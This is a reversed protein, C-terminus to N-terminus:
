FLYLQREVDSARWQPRHRFTWSYFIYEEHWEGCSGCPNPKKNVSNMECIILPGLKGVSCGLSIVQVTDYCVPSLSKVCHYSYWRIAKDNFFCCFKCCECTGWCETYWVWSRHRLYLFHIHMVVTTVVGSVACGGHGRSPTFIVTPSPTTTTPTTATPTTAAAATAKEKGKQCRGRAPGQVVCFWPSCPRIRLICRCGLASSLGVKCHPIDSVRTLVGCKVLDVFFYVYFRGFYRM